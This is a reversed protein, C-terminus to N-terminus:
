LAMWDDPNDYPPPEDRDDYDAAAQEVQQLLEGTLACPPLTWTGGDWCEERCEECVLRGCTVRVELVVVEAPDGPCWSDPPGSTTGPHGPDVECAVHLEAETGDDCPIWGDYFCEPCTWHFARWEVGLRALERRRREQRKRDAWALRRPGVVCRPCATPIAVPALDLEVRYTMRLGRALVGM